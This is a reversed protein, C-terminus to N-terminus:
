LFLAFVTVEGGVGGGGLLIYGTDYVVKSM